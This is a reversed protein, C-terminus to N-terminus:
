RSRWRSASRRGGDRCDTGPQAERRAPQNDSAPGRRGANGPAARSLSVAGAAGGGLTAMVEDVARSRVAEDGSAVSAEVPAHVSHLAVDSISLWEGLRAVAGADRYDFHARSAVAEIATFGHAAIQQIHAQDLREALFLRTSLGFRGETM